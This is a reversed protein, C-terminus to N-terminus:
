REGGQEPGLRDVAIARSNTATVSIVPPPGPAVLVYRLMVGAGGIAIRAGPQLEADISVDRGQVSVTRCGRVLRYRGGDEHILVDRGACDISGPNARDLVLAAERTATGALPLLPPEPAQADESIDPAAGGALTAALCTIVAAPPRM